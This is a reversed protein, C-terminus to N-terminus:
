KVEVNATILGESWSGAQDRLFVRVKGTYATQMDAVVQWLLGDGQPTGYATTHLTANAETLLLIASTAANTEIQFTLQAPATASAPDVKVSRLEPAIVQTAPAITSGAQADGAPSQGFISPVSGGTTAAPFVGHWLQAGLGSQYLAFAVAGLIMLVILTVFLGRRKKHKKPGNTSPVGFTPVPMPEAMHTDTIAEYRGSDDDLADPAEYQISHPARDIASSRQTAEPVTYVGASQLNNTDGTGHENGTQRAPQKGVDVVTANDQAGQSFAPTPYRNEVVNDNEEAEPERDLHAQMRRRRTTEGMAPQAAADAPAFHANGPQPERRVLTPEPVSHPVFAAVPTTDTSVFRPSAQPAQQSVTQTWVRRTM